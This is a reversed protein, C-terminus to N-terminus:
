WFASSSAWCMSSCIARTFRPKPDTDVDRDASFGATSDAFTKALDTDDARAVSAVFVLVALAIRM